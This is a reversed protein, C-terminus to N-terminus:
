YGSFYDTHIRAVKGSLLTKTADVMGPPGSIYTHREQADTVYTNLIDETMSNAEICGEGAEASFCFVIAGNQRLDETYAFEEPRSAFYLVTIARERGYAAVQSVFPTVGIGGAILLLKKTPDRPAIFDGRIGTTQIKTGVPLSCLAQKFSSSPSHFKIGLRLQNTGPANVISFDRRIGRADSNKHPLTLEIYQGPEFSYPRPAQFVFEKSSPTLPRVETLQLAIGSRQRFAVIFAFINGILLATIPSTSIPGFHYPISAAVAVIGAFLYKQWRKPPLTLPESLMVGAFFLLPWSLLTTTPPIGRIWLIGVSVILYMGALPLERTKYLLLFAVVLVFPALYPAGIWWTAYGIGLLSGIWVGMAAPNFVHRGKYVVIFKSAQALVAILAYQLLPYPSMTPTCILSLILGTILASTLYSRVGYLRALGYSVVISVAVLVATSALVEFPTFTVLGTLPLISAVGVLAVLLVVTLSYM